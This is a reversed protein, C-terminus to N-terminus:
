KIEQIRFEELIGLLAELPLGIVNSLSGVVKSIFVSGAGQIAYGGAKGRPEGTAIYWELHKEVDPIFTVETSVIRASTEGAPGLLCLATLALHPRGAYYDRFWGRVATKWTDDEPPQGLVHLAGDAGSAVITTDAALIVRRGALGAKSTLQQVVDAVKNRAIEALRMEIATVSTLGDFGAESTDRPPVVAIRDEPVVLGLLESRRPSRSALVFSTVV